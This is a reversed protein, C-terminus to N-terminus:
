NNEKTGIKNMEPAFACFLYIFLYYLIFFFFLRSISLILVFTKLFQGLEIGSRLWFIEHSFLVACFYVIVSM